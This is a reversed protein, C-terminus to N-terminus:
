VGVTMYSMYFAFRVVFCGALSLLAGAISLTLRLRRTRRMTASAGPEGCVAYREKLSAVGCLLTGCGCLLTYAGAVAPLPPVLDSAAAATTAISGYSAWQFALVANNALLAAAAVALLAVVMKKGFPQRAYAVTAIGVLPGSCLANLWLTAPATPLNWSAISPVSYAVAIFGVLVLGAVAAAGVWLRRALASLPRGFSKLWYTSALVLFVVAFFVENSLPSRGVGTLVYLANAPTGLHTASAVLGLTALLLPVVLFHSLAAARADAPELIVALAMVAFGAAGAPALTTFFVLTIEALAM